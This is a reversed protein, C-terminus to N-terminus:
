DESMGVSRGRCVVDVACRFCRPRRFFDQSLLKRVDFAERARGGVLVDLVEEHSDRGIEGLSLPPRQFICGFYCSQRQGTDNGFSSGNPEIVGHRSVERDLFVVHNVVRAGHLRRRGNERELGLFYRYFARQQGAFAFFQAFGLQRIGRNDFHDSEIRLLCEAASEEILSQSFNQYLLEQRLLSVTCLIDSMIRPSKALEPSLRRFNLLDQARVVLSGRRHTSVRFETSTVCCVSQEKWTSDRILSMSKRVLTELVLNSSTQALSAARNLLGITFASLSAPM